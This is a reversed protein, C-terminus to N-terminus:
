VKPGVASIKGDAVLVEGVPIVGLEGLAKGRRPRENGALTLVRANRILLSM